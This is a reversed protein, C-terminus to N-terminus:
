KLVLLVVRLISRIYWVHAPHIHVMISSYHDHNVTVVSHLVVVLSVITVRLTGYPTFDKTTHIHCSFMKPLQQQIQFLKEIWHMSICNVGALIAEWSNQGALMQHKITNINVYM